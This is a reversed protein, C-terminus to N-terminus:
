SSRSKWSSWNTWQLIGNAIIMCPKSFVSIASRVTSPFKEKSYSQAWTRNLPLTTLFATATTLVEFPFTLLRDRTM